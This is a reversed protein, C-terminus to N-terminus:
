KKLVLMHMCIYKSTPVAKPLQKEGEVSCTSSFSSVCEPKTALGKELRVMDGVKSQKKNNLCLRNDLSTKFLLGGAEMEQNSPHYAHVTVTVSHTSTRPHKHTHVCTHDWNRKSHQTCTKVHERKSHPQCSLECLKLQFGVEALKHFSHDQTQSNGAETEGDTVKPDYTAPDV